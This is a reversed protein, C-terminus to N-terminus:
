RVNKFKVYYCTEVRLYFDQVTTAGNFEMSFKLGLHPVTTTSCDIWQNWIPSTAATVGDLYVQNRVAPRVYVDIFSNPRLVKMQMNNRERLDNPTEITINDYDRVYMLKPYFNAGNGLTTNNLATNSDPNSQLQFRVKVGVIMYQDYLATLESAGRVQDLSFTIQQNYASSPFTAQHYVPTAWRKYAHVNYKQLSVARRGPARRARTMKRSKAAARKGAYRSRARYAAIKSKLSPMKGM